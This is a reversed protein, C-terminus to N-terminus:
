WSMSESNGRTTGTSTSSNLQLAYEDLILARAVSNPSVSGNELGPEAAPHIGGDSGMLAFERCVGACAAADTACLEGLLWSQDMEGRLYVVLEVILAVPEGVGM